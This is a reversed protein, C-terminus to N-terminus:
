TAPGERPVPERADLQALERPREGARRRPPPRTAPRKRERTNTHLLRATSLGAHAHTHLPRATYTMPATERRRTEAAASAAGNSSRAHQWTHTSVGKRITEAAAACSNPRRCLLTSSIPATPCQYGGTPMASSMEACRYDKLVALSYPFRGLRAPKAGFRRASLPQLLVRISKGTRLPKLSPVPTKEAGVSRPM